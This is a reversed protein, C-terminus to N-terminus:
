NALVDINMTPSSFSECGDKTVVLTDELNFMTMGPVETNPELSIVMGEELPNHDFATIRPYDHVSLGIGHGFFSLSPGLNYKDLYKLGINFLESSKIGPRIAERVAERSDLLAQHVRKQSNTSRGGIVVNRCMDGWYGEYGCGHDCFLLQGDKFKHNPDINYKVPEKPGTSSIDVVHGTDAFIHLFSFYGRERLATANIKELIEYPTAQKDKLMPFIVEEFCLTTIDAARKLKAIEESSKVARVDMLLEFADVFKADPLREKLETFISYSIRAQEVGITAKELKRDKIANVVCDIHTTAHLPDLLVSELGDRPIYGTRGAGRVDNIWSKEKVSETHHYYTVFFSDINSDLPVGVFQNYDGGDYEKDVEFWFPWNWNWCHTLWNSLYGVNQRSTALVLDIKHREMHSHLRDENFIPKNINMIKENM